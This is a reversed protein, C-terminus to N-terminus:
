RSTSSARKSLRPILRRYSLASKGRGRAPAALTRRLQTDGREDVLSFRIVTGDAPLDLVSRLVEGRPAAGSQDPGLPALAPSLSVRDAPDSSCGNMLPPTM